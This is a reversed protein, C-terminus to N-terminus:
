DKLKKIADVKKQVEGLWEPLAGAFCHRAHVEGARILEACVTLEDAGAGAPAPARTEFGARELTAFVDDVAGKQVKLRHIRSVFPNEPYASALGDSFVLEQVEFEGSDWVRVQEFEMDPGPPGGSRELRLLTTSGELSKHVSMVGKDSQNKCVTSCGCLSAVFLVAITLSARGTSLM